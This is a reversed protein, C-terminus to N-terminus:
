LRVDVQKEFRREFSIEIGWRRLTKSLKKGVPGVDRQLMLRVRWPDQGPPKDMDWTLSDLLRLKTRYAERWTDGKRIETIALISYGVTTRNTFVLDVCDSGHQKTSAVKIDVPSQRSLMAMALFGIGLLIAVSVWSLHKLQGENVKLGSTFRLRSKLFTFIQDRSTSGAWAAERDDSRSM